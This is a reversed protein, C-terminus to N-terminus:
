VRYHFKKLLCNDIDFNLLFGRRDEPLFCNGFHIEMNFLKFVNSMYRPLKQEHLTCYVIFTSVSVHLALRRISLNPEEEIPQLIKPEIELVHDSRPGGLDHTRSDFKGHDRVRQVTASFTPSDPIRCNPFRETYRCGGRKSRM